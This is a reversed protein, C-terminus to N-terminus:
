RKYSFKLRGKSEGDIYTQLYRITDTYIEKEEMRGKEIWDQASDLLFLRFLIRYENMSLLHELM